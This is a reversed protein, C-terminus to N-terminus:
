KVGDDRSLASEMMKIFSPWLAGLIRVKQNCLIEEHDIRVLPYERNRVSANSDFCVADFDGTDPRGIQVFGCPLLLEALSNKPASAEAVYLNEESNWAFFSIGEIDFSEFSYRSLWSTFSLPLRKSLREEFTKLRSANNVRQIAVGRRRLLDAFLDVLQIIDRM